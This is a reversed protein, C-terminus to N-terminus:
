TYFVKVDVDGETWFDTGVAAEVFFSGVSVLNLSKEIRQQDLEVAETRLTKRNL